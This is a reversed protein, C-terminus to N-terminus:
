DELLRNIEGNSLGPRMTLIIHRLKHNELQMAYFKAVFENYRRAEHTRGLLSTLTPAMCGCKDGRGNSLMGNGGQYCVQCIM